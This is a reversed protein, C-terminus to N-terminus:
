KEEEVVDQAKLDEESLMKSRSVLENCKNCFYSVSGCASVEELAEHCKPCYYTSM